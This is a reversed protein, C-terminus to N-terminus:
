VEIKLREGTGPLSAIIQGHRYRAVAVERERGRLDVVMALGIFHITECLPWVWPINRLYIALHSNAVWQVTPVVYAMM